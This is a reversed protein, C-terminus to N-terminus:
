RTLPPAGQQQVVAGLTAPAQRWSLRGDFIPFSRKAALSSDDDDQYVLLALRPSFQFWADPARESSVLRDLRENLERGLGYKYDLNRMKPWSRTITDMVHPVLLAAIRPWQEETPLELEFYNPHEITGSPWKQGRELSPKVTLYRFVARRIEAQDASLRDIRVQASHEIAWAAGLGSMTASDPFCDELSSNHVRRAHEDQEYICVLKSCGCNCQDAHYDQPRSSTAEICVAKACSEECDGVDPSSVSRKGCYFCAM